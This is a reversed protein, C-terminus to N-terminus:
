FYDITPFGARADLCAQLYLAVGIDGTWLTFRGRGVEARQRAVQDIAHMGFRRARILWRDDDSLEFVRLFAFGNGATGHCLGPGKALPGARWVLEAGGLRLREPMLDALTSVIGAAGHCWQVRLASAPEGVSPPWNVLEGECLATRELARRVRDRLISADLSGRLAYVNGAFGHAPGLHQRVRGSLKQTWLDSESDWRALLIRASEEGEHRLGGARAAIITGPSGWMLEWTPHERNAHVLDRLRENDAAPSGIQGAVVLLGTEGLMLSPPHASSGLDPQGRYHELARALATAGDFGSGLRGLAWIMGASGIYLSALREEAAVDDGPHGPWFGGREATEADEVIAEIAARAVREDWPRDTLEEHQDSRWLV